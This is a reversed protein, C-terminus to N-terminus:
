LPAAARPTGAGAGAYPHSVGCDGAGRPRQAVRGQGVTTDRLCGKRYM